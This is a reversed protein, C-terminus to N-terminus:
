SDKRLLMVHEYTDPHHFSEALEVPTGSEEYYVRLIRVIPEGARLNLRQVPEGEAAVAIIRQEVEVIELGTNQEIQTYIPVNHITEEGLGEALDSPIFINTYAFIKNERDYRLADVHLVESDANLALRRAVEESPAETSVHLTKLVTESAFQAVDSISGTVPNIRLGQTRDRVVTGKGQHSELYGRTRLYRLAERITNRSVNYREALKPESALQDGPLLAGSEIERRLQDAIQLYLSVGRRSFRRVAPFSPSGLARSVYEGSM